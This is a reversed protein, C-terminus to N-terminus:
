LPLAVADLLSSAGTNQNGEAVESAPTTDEEHHLSKAKAYPTAFLHVGSTSIAFQPALNLSQSDERLESWRNDLIFWRAELRAALVAHDMRVTRDRVLLIKLDGAAFGAERLAVYKAIAYDECDGKTTAFTALASSWRDLEGFQALDSVYRIAANVGENVESLQARGSKAKVAGILRLFQSGNSPCASMDARCRELVLRDRAIDAEVGRWKQWLLSEPARFTALGFPEPSRSEAPSPEFEADSAVPATPALAAMRLAGPGRGRERDLRALVANITFFKAQAQAPPLEVSPAQSPSQGEAAGAPFHCHISLGAAAILIM